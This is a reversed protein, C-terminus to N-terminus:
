KSNRILVAYFILNYMTNINHFVTIFDDENEISLPYQNKDEFVLCCARVLMLSMFIAVGVVIKDM